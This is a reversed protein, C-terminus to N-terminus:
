RTGGPPPLTRYIAEVFMDTTWPGTTAGFDADYDKTPRAAKVQEVTMGRRRMEDVRDRVITLMDRYYAVDASDSIRGHGPVFMTGGEAMFDSAATALMRNVGDILGNITGGQAVEIVPYRDNVYLDGAAIVDARRFHVFSDADTHAANPHVLKVGENNFWRFLTMEPGFYVDKPWAAFPPPDPARRMQTAVNEHGIIMAVNEERGLLTNGGTNRIALGAKSLAENGGTHEPDFHTNLIYMLPRPSIQRLAALVQASADARGTDVLMIGDGGISATINGGAGMVVHINDRVPVVRIGTDAPMDPVALPRAAERPANANDPIGIRAKSALMADVTARYEPYRSAAGGRVAEHPIGFKDAWEFLQKNTGPLYHPVQGPRRDVDEEKPECPYPVIHQSPDLVYDSSRIHVEELYVPDYIMMVGTMVSGHRIWYQVLTAKASRPVGNRRIYGEKMHTTTIRLMDGDWEGKSFGGWTHPAGAPPRPRGDMFTPRDTSRLWYQHYAVLDRTQPDIEKWIRMQSPGRWIYDIPHPRCQWEPMSLWGPDWSDARARGADNMPLGTYDGLEPGNGREDNDEHFRPVWEGSMDMENGALNFGGSGLLNPALPEQADARVVVTIAGAAALLLALPVLGRRAIPNV